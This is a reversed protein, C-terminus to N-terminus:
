TGADSDAETPEPGIEIVEHPPKIPTADPFPVKGAKVTLVTPTAPNLIDAPSDWEVPFRITMSLEGGVRKVSFHSDVPFWRSGMAANPLEFGEKIVSLDFSEDNLTLIDGSVSAGLKPLKFDPWLTIKM